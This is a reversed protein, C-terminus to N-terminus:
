DLFIFVLWQNVAVGNKLHFISYDKKMIWDAAAFLYVRTEM